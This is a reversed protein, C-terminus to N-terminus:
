ALQFYMYLPIIVADNHCGRRHGHLNVDGVVEACVQILNRISPM